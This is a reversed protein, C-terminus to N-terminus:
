LNRTEINFSEADECASPINHAEDFIIVSNNYNIKVSDRYTKDIVYLYPIFIVDAGAVREKM